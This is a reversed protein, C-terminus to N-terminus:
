WPQQPKKNGKMPYSTWPFLEVLAFSKFYTGQWWWWLRRKLHVHGGENRENPQAQMITRPKHTDQNENDHDEEGEYSKSTLLLLLSHLAGVVWTTTM